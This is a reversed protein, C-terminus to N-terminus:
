TPCYVSRGYRTRSRSCSPAQTGSLNTVTDLVTDGAGTFMLVETDDADIAPSGGTITRPAGGTLNNNVVLTTVDADETNLEQITVDATGNVTLIGTDDDETLGNFEIMGGVSFDQEANIIVNLLNNEEAIFSIGTNASINGTIANAEDGESSITLLEFNSPVNPAKDVTGLLLDGDISANGEFTLNLTTVEQDLDLDNFALDGPVEVDEEIVVFRHTPIVFDLEEPTKAVYLTVSSALDDILYEVNRGGVFNELAKLATIDYGSADLSTFFDVPAGNEDAFQFVVTTDDGGNVVLGDAQSFEALGLTQGDELIVEL